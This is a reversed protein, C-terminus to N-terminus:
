LNTLSAPHTRVRLPQRPIEEAVSIGCSKLNAKSLNKPCFAAVNKALIDCLHETAWNNINHGYSVKLQAETTWM